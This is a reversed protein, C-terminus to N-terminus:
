AKKLSDVSVAKEFLKEDNRFWKTKIENMGKYNSASKNEKKGLSTSFKKRTGGTVSKLLRGHSTCMCLIGYTNGTSNCIRYKKFGDSKPASYSVKNLGFGLNLLPVITWNQPRTKNMKLTVDDRSQCVVAAKQASLIVQYISSFVVRLISELVYGFYRV